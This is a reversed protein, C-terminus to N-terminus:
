QPGGATSPIFRRRLEERERQEEPTLGTAQQAAPAAPAPPQATPNAGPDGRPVGARAENAKAVAEATGLGSRIADMALIRARRKQALTEPADGPQPLFIPGYLDFEQSTIAAGTDKRLISALFNDAAQKAQQFEPTRIYNGLGLPALEALRAQSFDTLQTDLASLTADADLGRTYYIVDKSQQETLRAGAGSGGQTVSVTGDPNTTISMGSKPPAMQGAAQSRPVYRVAGTAADYVQELPEGGAGASTEKAIAADYQARRADGAPLADREQMLRALTSPPARDPKTTAETMARQYDLFTGQFGQRRALEYGQIEAPPAAPKAASQVLAAAGERLNTLAQPSYDPLDDIGFRALGARAREYGAQDTVDKFAAYVAPAQSVMREREAETIERQAKAQALRTTAADNQAALDALRMRQRNMDSAERAQLGGM